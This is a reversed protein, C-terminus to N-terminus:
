VKRVHHLVGGFPQTILGREILKEVSAVLTKEQVDFHAAAAELTRRLQVAAADPVGARLVTVADSLYADVDSPLHAVNSEHESAQMTVARVAALLARGTEPSADVGLATFSFRLSAEVQDLHAVEWPEAESQGSRMTATMQDVDRRVTQM